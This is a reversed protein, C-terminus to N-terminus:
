LLSIQIRRITGDKKKKREEKGKERGERERKRKEMEENTVRMKPSAAIQCEQVYFTSRSKNM